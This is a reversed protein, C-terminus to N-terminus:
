FCRSCPTYRNKAETISLALKSNSLYSCGERHYKKGSGTVYVVDPIKEVVPTKVVLPKKAQKRYGWPPIPDKSAWLGVKKERAKSELLALKKDNKAYQRYWWACGTEVLMENINRGSKLYIVGITRGYRDKSKREVLVEKGLIAKSLKKTSEKGYYQSKEPCDIGNLRIKEKEGNNDVTITDGDYVSVVKHTTTKILKVTLGQVASKTTIEANVVGCSFLLMLIIAFRKM